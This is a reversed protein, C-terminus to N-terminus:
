SCALFFQWAPGSWLGPMSVWIVALLLATKRSSKEM